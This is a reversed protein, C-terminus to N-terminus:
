LVIEDDEKVNRANNEKYDEVMDVLSKYYASLAKINIEPTEKTPITVPMEDLFYLLEAYKTIILNKVGLIMENLETETKM